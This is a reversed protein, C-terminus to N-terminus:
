LVGAVAPSGKRAKAKGEARKMYRLVTSITARHERWRNVLTHGQLTLRAVWRVESALSEEISDVEELVRFQPEIGASLLDWLLTRVTQRRSSPRQGQGCALHERKRNEFDSTQGVYFPGLARPDRIEYTVFSARPSEAASALPPNANVKSFLDHGQARFRSSWEAKAADAEPSSLWEELRVIVPRKGSNILDGLWQVLDDRRVGRRRAQRLLGAWRKELDTAKGVYVPVKTDPNCVAFVTFM